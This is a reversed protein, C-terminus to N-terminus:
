LNRGKLKLVRIVSGERIDFDQVTRFDDDLLLGNFIFRMECFPLEELFAIENKITWILDTPKVFLTRLEEDPNPNFMKYKIEFRDQDVIM